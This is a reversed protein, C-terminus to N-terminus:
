KPAGGVQDTMRDAGSQVNSNVSVLMEQPVVKEEMTAKDTQGEEKLANAYAGRVVQDILEFPFQIIKWYIVQGPILAAEISFEDQVSLTLVSNLTDISPQV